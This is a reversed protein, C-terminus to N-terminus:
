AERYIAYLQDGKTRAADIEGKIEFPFVNIPDSDQDAKMTIGIGKTMYGRYIVIHTLCSTGSTNYHRNTFVYCRPTLTGAGGANIFSLNSTYASQATVLGNWAAVFNDSKLEILEGSVTVTELAVGTIPDPANGAQVDIMSIDHQFNSLMGAGLNTLTSLIITNVSTLASFVSTTQIKYNGIVLLDSTVTGNQIVAM